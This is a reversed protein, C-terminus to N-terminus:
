YREINLQADWDERQADWKYYAAVQDLEGALRPHSNRLADAIDKYRKVLAREQGGGEDPMRSTMGRNNRIGLGFGDRMHEADEQELLDRVPGCPWSGDLDAPCSSLWQGLTSDTVKSRDHLRAGERVAAVWNCFAEADVIKGDGTGPTGRGYHLVSWALQAAPKRSEDLPEDPGDQKKFVLCILELFLAPDGLIEAYLNPVGHQDHGLAQYFAFELLALTRRPVTGSAKAVAIAEGINWGRPLPGDTELGARIGDLMAVIHEPAVDKLEAHVVQFATRPRGASLLQEVVKYLDESGGRVYGLRISKWYAAQVAVSQTELLSWTEREAPLCSLLAAVENPSASDSLHYTASKLLQSRRETPSGCLIGSVMPQQFIAGTRLFEGVMWTALLEVDLEARATQLGVLWPNGSHEALHVLDNLGGEALIEQLATRRLLDRREEQKEFDDERGDPLDVWGDLFLWAHREIASESALEDFL